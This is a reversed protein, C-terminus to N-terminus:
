MVALSPLMTLIGYSATPAPIKPCPTPSKPRLISSGVSYFGLSAGGPEEGKKSSTSTKKQTFALFNTCPKSGYRQSASWILNHFGVAQASLAPPETFPTRLLAYGTFFIPHKKNRSNNHLTEINKSRNM